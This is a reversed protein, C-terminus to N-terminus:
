SPTCSWVVAQVLSLFCSIASDPVAPNTVLRSTVYGNRDSVGEVYHLEQFGDALLNCGARVSQEEGAFLRLHLRHGFRPLTLSQAVTLLYSRFIKGVLIGTLVDRLAPKKFAPSPTTTSLLPVLTKSKPSEERVVVSTAAVPAASTSPAPQPDASENIVVATM